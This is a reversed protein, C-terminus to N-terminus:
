TRMLEIFSARMAFTKKEVNKTQTLPFYGM